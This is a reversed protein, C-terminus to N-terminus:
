LKDALLIWGMTSKTLFSLICYALETEERPIINIFQLTQLVGFLAFLIAMTHLLLHPTQHTAQLFLVTWIFTHLIWSAIHLAYRKYSSSTREAAAGLLILVLQLTMMMMSSSSSSSILHIMIPSTIAWEIWRANSSHPYYYYHAAQVIFVLTISNSYLAYVPIQVLSGVFAAHQATDM